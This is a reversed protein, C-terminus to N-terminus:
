AAWSDFQHQQEGVEELQWSGEVGRLYGLQPDQSLVSDFPAMSDEQLVPAGTVPVEHGQWQRTVDLGYEYLDDGRTADPGAVLAPDIVQEPVGYQSIPPYQSPQGHYADRERGYPAPSPAGRYLVDDMPATRGSITHHIDHPHFQAGASYSRPPSYSPPPQSQDPSGHPYNQAIISTVRTETGAAQGYPSNGRNGKANRGPVYEPDDLEPRDESQARGKKTKAPAFKYNPYALRHNRKEIESWDEFQQQIHKPELAWGQGAVRSIVNHHNQSLAKALNQYAKRYLMFSNMPRKIKGPNKDNEIVEKVREDTSRQVYAEINPMEVEPYGGALESLPRHIIPPEKQKGTREGKQKNKKRQEPKSIRNDKCHTPNVQSQKSGRTSRRIPPAPHSVGPPSTEPTYPRSQQITNAEHPSTRSDAPWLVLPNSTSSVVYAQDTQFSSYATTAKGLDPSGHYPLSPGYHVHTQSSIGAAKRTTMGPDLFVGADNHGIM